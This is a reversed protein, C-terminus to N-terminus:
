AHSIGMRKMIILRSVASNQTLTVPFREGIRESTAGDVFQQEWLVPKVLICKVVIKSFIVLNYFPSGVM